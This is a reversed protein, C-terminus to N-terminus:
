EDFHFRSELRLNLFVASKQAVGDDSETGFVKAGIKIGEEPLKGQRDPV